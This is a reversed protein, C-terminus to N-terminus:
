KNKGLLMKIIKILNGFLEFNDKVQRVTINKKPPNTM